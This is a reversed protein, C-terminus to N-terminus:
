SHSKQVIKNTQLQKCLEGSLLSEQYFLMLAQSIFSEFLSRLATLFAMTLIKLNCNDVKINIKAELNIQMIWFQM